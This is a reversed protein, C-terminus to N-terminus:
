ALAAATVIEWALDCYLEFAGRAGSGYKQRLTGVPTHEASEAIRMLEPIVTRFVPPPDTREALRKTVAQHLATQARFRSVAIGLPSIKQGVAGAFTAIRGVIADVSYTSLLDPVVPVVFGDSMRLGNRTIIGLSPPNDILVYDYDGVIPEVARRLVAEPAHMRSSPASVLRDQVDILDLSSPLLDLGTVERVNSVDRQLTWELDFSRYGPKLQTDKFLRALTHGRDNLDIWRQEGILMVTASMQPDLDIVLVRKGYQGALVEGVAVTTTTKAVGGKLNVMSIVVAM